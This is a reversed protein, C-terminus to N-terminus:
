NGRAPVAASAGGEELAFTPQPHGVRAVLFGGRCALRAETPLARQASHPCETVHVAFSAEAVCWDHAVGARDWGARPTSGRTRGLWPDGAGTGETGTKAGNCVEHAASGRRSVRSLMEPADRYSGHALPAVHVRSPVVATGNRGGGCNARQGDGRAGKYTVRLVKASLRMADQVVVAHDVDSCGGKQNCSPCGAAMEQPIVGRIQQQAISERNVGSQMGADPNQRERAWAGGGQMDVPLRPQRPGRHPGAADHHATDALRTVSPTDPIGLHGGRLSM